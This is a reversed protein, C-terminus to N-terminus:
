DKEQLLLNLPTKLHGLYVPQDPFVTHDILDDRWVHHSGGPCLTQIRQVPREIKQDHSRDILQKKTFTVM